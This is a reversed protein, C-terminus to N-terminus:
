EEYPNNRWIHFIVSLVLAAVVLAIGGQYVVFTKLPVFWSNTFDWFLDVTGTSYTLFWFLFYLGGAILAVIGITDWFSGPNKAYGV